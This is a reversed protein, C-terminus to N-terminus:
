SQSAKELDEIACELAAIADNLDDRLAAASLFEEPDPILSKIASRLYAPEVGQGIGFDDAVATGTMEIARAPDTAAFGNANALNMPSGALRKLYWVAKKLDKVGDKRGARLIYALSSARFHDLGHAEIIEICEWRTGRYHSPNIPDDTMIDEQYPDSTPTTM